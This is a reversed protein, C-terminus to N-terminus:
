TRAEADVALAFCDVGLALLMKLFSEWIELGPAHFVATRAVREGGVRRTSRQFIIEVSSSVFAPECLPAGVVARRLAGVRGLARGASAVHESFNRSLKNAKKSPGKTKLRRHDRVDDDDDDFPANKKKRSTPQCAIHVGTMSQWGRFQHSFQDIWSSLTFKM